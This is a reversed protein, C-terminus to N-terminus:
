SFSHMRFHNLAININVLGGVFWHGVDGGLLETSLAVGEALLLFLYDPM